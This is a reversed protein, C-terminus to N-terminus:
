MSYNINASKMHVHTNEQMSGGCIETDATAM